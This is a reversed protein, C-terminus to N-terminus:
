LGSNQGSQWQEFNIRIFSLPKRKPKPASLPTHSLDAQNLSVWGPKGTNLRLQEYRIWDEYRM